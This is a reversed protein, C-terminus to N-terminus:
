DGGGRSLMSSGASRGLGERVHFVVERNSLRRGLDKTCGVATLGGRIAERPTGGAPALRSGYFFQVYWWNM